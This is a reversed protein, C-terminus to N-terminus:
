VSPSQHVMVLDTKRGRYHVSWALLGAFGDCRVAHCQGVFSPNWFWCPVTITSSNRCKLPFVAKLLTKTLKM